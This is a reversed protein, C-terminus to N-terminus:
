VGQFIMIILILALGLALMPDLNIQRTALVFSVM